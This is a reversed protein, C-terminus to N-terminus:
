RTGVVGTPELAPSLAVPTVTPEIGQPTYIQLFGVSGGGGGAGTTVGSTVSPKNGNTPSKGKVGGAGGVGEGDQPNGPSAATVDSLQGDEGPFGQLGSLLRGAGGAGGNSFMSGTLSVDIGQLVIVGGAGGGLGHRLFGGGGGGGGNSAITGSVSVRQTCSVLSVGGGGGGGGFDQEDLVSQRASAGGLLAQFVAPSPAAAGGNMQGGSTTPTGGAAGPTAGGAGGAGGGNINGGSQRVGGGPGNVSGTASVDLEGEISLESDAVFMVVRGRQLPKGIVRLEVGLPISITGYHVVCLATTGPQEIVGGNCNTDLNPDFIGSSTFILEPDAAPQECVDPAYKPELHACRAGGEADGVCGARCTEAFVATGNADCRFLDDDVCSTDDVECPLCGAVDCGFPCEALDFDDGTANCTIAQDGRCAAFEGPNCNVAICTGPEGSFTGEVDCFGFEADVCFGQPCTAAPNPKTCAVLFCVLVLFRM